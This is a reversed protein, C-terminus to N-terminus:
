SMNTWYGEYNFTFYWRRQHIIVQLVGITSPITFDKKAFHRGLKRQRLCFQPTTCGLAQSFQASFGGLMFDETQTSRFTVFIPLLGELKATRSSLSSINLVTTMIQAHPKSRKSILTNLGLHFEMCKPGLELTKLCLNGKIVFVNRWDM